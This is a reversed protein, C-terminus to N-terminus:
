RGGVLARELRTLNWSSIIVFLNNNIRKLLFPDVPVNDWDDVEWLIFFDSLKGKGKPLKNAPVIPVKTQLKQNVFEDDYRGKNEAKAWDIFIKKPLNIEHRWDNYGSGKFKGSGNERKEFEVKIMDARAIALKPQDKENKGTFKFAEFIDIVKRDEKLHYYLGRLEKLYKDGRVKSAEVYEKWKIRAIKRPVVIPKISKM